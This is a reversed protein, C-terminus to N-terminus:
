FRLLNWMNFDVPTHLLNRVRPGLSTKEFYVHSIKKKVAWESVSQLDFYVDYEAIKRGANNVLADSYKCAASAM